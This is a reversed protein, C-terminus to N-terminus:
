SPDVTWIGSPSIEAMKVFKQESAKLEETRADLVM